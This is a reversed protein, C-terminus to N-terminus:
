EELSSVVYSLVFGEDVAEPDGSGEANLSEEGVAVGLNDYLLDILVPLAGLFLHVGVALLYSLELGM